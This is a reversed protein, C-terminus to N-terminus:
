CKVYLLCAYCFLSKMCEGETAIYTGHLQTDRSLVSSVSVGWGVGVSVYVNLYLLLRTYLWKMEQCAKQLHSPIQAHLFCLSDLGSFSLHNLCYVMRVYMFSRHVCNSYHHSPTQSLLHISLTHAWPPLDTIHSSTVNITETYDTNM